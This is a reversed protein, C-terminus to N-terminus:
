QVCSLDGRASLFWAILKPSVITGAAIQEGDIIVAPMKEVELGPVSWDESPHGIEVVEFAFDSRAASVKRLTEYNLQNLIVCATCPSKQMVLLANHTM